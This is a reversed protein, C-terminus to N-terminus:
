TNKNNKIKTKNYKNKKEKKFFNNKKEKQVLSFELGGKIPSVQQLKVNILDGMRYRTKTKRGVICHNKSDHIYYDGRINKLFMIGEAGTEILKIFMAFDNVGSVKANFISGVKDQMFLSLYKDMTEREAKQATRETNSINGAIEEFKEKQEQKLGDNGLNYADILARHVLLDSYRRIPSTFHCYNKLALGFHGLNEPSYVAQSQCRLIIDSIFTSHETDKTISIIASFHKPTIAGDIPLKMNFEQLATNFAEIKDKPPLDHVRYMIHNQNKEQLAVASAINASIMFEEIMKHSDLRTRPLIDIINSNKDMIVQNEPIDLELTNRKKRAKSLLKYANYLNDIQQKINQTTDCLNGECANQAQEYTLRAHSKMLGRIFKYNIIEGNDNIDIWVAMCARDQNPVLSCLDNSLKEPLMPVVLDPFYVSNGRKLAEKDLESNNKVYHAVDAIAVLIKFGNNNPEAYVADDFDRADAGDITVLPITRLDTRKDLNPVTMKQTEDIIKKDFINPINHKVISLMSFCKAENISGIKEVVVANKQLKSKGRKPMAIVMDKDQSDQADDREVFYINRDKKDSSILNFGKQTKELVGIINKQSNTLIKIVTCSYVNESQKSIRGLIKDGIKPAPKGQVYIEPIVDNHTSEDPICLIEGDDDIKCVKFVGISKADDRTSPQKNDTKKNNPIEGNREMDQLFRRFDARCNKPVGLKEAMEKKRFLGGNNLYELIKEKSPLKKNM